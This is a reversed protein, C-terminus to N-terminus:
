ALEEAAALELRKQQQRMMQQSMKMMEIPQSGQLQEIKVATDSQIKAKELNAKRDSEAMTEFREELNVPFMENDQEEESQEMQLSYLSILEHFRDETAIEVEEGHIAIFEEWPASQACAM